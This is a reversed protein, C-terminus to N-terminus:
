DEWARRDTEMRLGIWLSVGGGFLLLLVLTGFLVPTGPSGPMLGVLLSNIGSVEIVPEATASLDPDVDVVLSAEVPVGASDRVHYTVATTRGTFGEVPDFTVTGNDGVTFVGEGPILLRTGRGNDLESLNTAALSSIRLTEPDLPQSGSGATDNSLVDVTFPNQPATRGEDDRPTAIVPAVIVQVTAQVLNDAYVGRAIVGVPTSTGTFGEAPTMEVAGTEGDIRWTGEGAVTLEAADEALDAGEPAAAPDFRLSDSSVDRSGASMDVSIETGPPGAVSRSRLIPYATSLQATSATNGMGDGGTIGMPATEHVEASEPSFRVTAATRDLVWTGQGEVVVETGDESAQHSEPADLPQLRLTEPDVYQQGEGVVFLIDQGYPASWDLDSIIPVSLTVRGAREVAGEDDEIVFRVPDLQRGLGPGAPTHTLTGGDAALQWAGQDPVTVRSGDDLVTAGPPLGGLELRASGQAPVDGPLEISAAEGASGRATVEELELLEPTLRIPQSRGEHLGGITLEIPASPGEVGLLPTFVLEDGLLTWTGEGTVELSHSDEGLRMQELTSEDAGQPLTLQASGLDVQDELGDDILAGIPIRTISSPVMQLTQTEAPFDFSGDEGLATAPLATSLALMGAACLAAARAVLTGPRARSPRRPSSELM